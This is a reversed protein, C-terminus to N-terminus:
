GEVKKLMGKASDKAKDLFTRLSKADRLLSDLKKKQEPTTDSSGRGSRYYDISGEFSSMNDQANGILVLFGKVYKVVPAPISGGAAETVLGQMRRVVDDM